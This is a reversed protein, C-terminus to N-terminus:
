GKIAVLSQNGDFPYAWAKMFRANTVKRHPRPPLGPDHLYLHNKTCGYVVVSHGAYGKRRNLASSNVACEVLYGRNLLNKIDELTPPRKHNKIVHLYRKFLRREHSIDSNKIQEEAMEKGWIRILEKKGDQIFAKIDFSDIVVVDFGMKHLNILM